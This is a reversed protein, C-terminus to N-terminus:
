KEGPPWKLKRGLAGQSSVLSNKIISSAAVLDSPSNQVCLHFPEPDMELILWGKWLRGEPSCEHVLIFRPAALQGPSHLEPDLM